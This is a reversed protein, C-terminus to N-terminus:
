WYIVYAFRMGVEQSFLCVCLIHAFQLMKFMGDKRSGVWGIVVEDRNIYLKKKRPHLSEDLVKPVLLV